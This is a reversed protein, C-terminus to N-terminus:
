SIEFHSYSFEVTYELVSGVASYDTDIASVSKVYANKLTYTVMPTINKWDLQQIKLESTYQQVQNIFFGLAGVDGYNHQHETSEMWDLFAVRLEHNETLYFTCSWTQDFKVQGKIPIDRGKFKFSLPEVTKSPFQSTKVHVTTQESTGGFTNVSGFSILCEFKASRAGDGLASDILSQIKDAM